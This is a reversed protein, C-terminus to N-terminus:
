AVAKFKKQTKKALQFTATDKRAGRHTFRHFDTGRFSDDFASSELASEFATSFDTLLRQNLNEARLLMAGDHM